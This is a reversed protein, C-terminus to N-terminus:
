TPLYLKLTYLRLITHKQCGERLRILVGFSHILEKRGRFAGKPQGSLESRYPALSEDSLDQTWIGPGVM